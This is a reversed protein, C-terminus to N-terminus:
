VLETWFNHLIVQQCSIHQLQNNFNLTSTTFTKIALSSVTAITFSNYVHKTLVLLVELQLLVGSCIDWHGQEYCQQRTESYVNVGHYMETEM